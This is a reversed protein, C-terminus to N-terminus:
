TNRYPKTRLPHAQVVADDQHQAGNNQLIHVHNDGQIAGGLGLFVASSWM